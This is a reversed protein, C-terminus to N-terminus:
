EQRFLVFAELENVPESSLRETMKHFNGKPGREYGGESGIAGNNNRSQSTNSEREPRRVGKNDASM